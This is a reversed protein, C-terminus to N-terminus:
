VLHKSTGYMPSGITSVVSRMPYDKQPKHVKLLGYMRPPVADSPYMDFFLKTDIKDDKRLQLLERQFKKTLSKTPDSTSVKAEGLQERIKEM